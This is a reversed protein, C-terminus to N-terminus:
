HSEEPNKEVELNDCRFRPCWIVNGYELHHHVMITFISPLTKEDFCTFAAIVLGLMISSNNVAKSVHM